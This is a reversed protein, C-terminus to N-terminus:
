PQPVVFRVSYTLPPSSFFLVGRLRSLDGSGSIVTSRGSVVGPSAGQDSIEGALTGSGVGTVIGTFTFTGHFEHAGSTYVTNTVNLVATGSRVGDSLTTIERVTIVNGGALRTSLVTNSIVHITGTGEIRIAGPNLVLKLNDIFTTNDGGATDLGLFTLTHTGPTAIFSASLNEYITSAPEFTGLTLADLQVEFDQNGGGSLRRAASFTLTYASDVFGGISQSFSSAGQIFAVQVGDPASQSDTFNSHNSSIGSFPSFNWASGTTGYTFNGDGLVPTEFGCQTLTTGAIDTCGSGMAATPIAAATLAFVLTIITASARAVLNWPRM